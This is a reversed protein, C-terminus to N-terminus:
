IHRCSIDSPPSLRRYIGLSEVFDGNDFALMSTSAEVRDSVRRLEAYSVERLLEDLPDLARRLM